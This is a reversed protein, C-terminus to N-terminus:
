KHEYSRREIRRKVPQTGHLPDLSIGTKSNRARIIINLSVNTEFEIFQKAHKMEISILKMNVFIGSEIFIIPVYQTKLTLLEFTM